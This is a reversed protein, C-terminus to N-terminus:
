TAPPTGEAAQQAKRFADAMGSIIARSLGHSEERALRDLNDIFWSAEIAGSKILGDMLLGNIRLLAMTEPSIQDKTAM